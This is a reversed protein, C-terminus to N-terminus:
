LIVLEDTTTCTGDNKPKGTVTAMQAFENETVVLAQVLGDAPRNEELKAILSDAVRGNIALKVYVSEQMALYGSKLLYKRFIRYERRQAATDVPLDFFVIVRM